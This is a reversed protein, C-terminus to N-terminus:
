ANLLVGQEEYARLMKIEGNRSQMGRHFLEIFSTPREENRNNQACGSHAAHAEVCRPKHLHFQSIKSGQTAKRM